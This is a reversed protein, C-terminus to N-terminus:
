PSLEKRVSQVEAHSNWHDIKTLKLSLNEVNRNKRAAKEGYIKQLISHLVKRQSM